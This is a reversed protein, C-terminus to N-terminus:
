REMKLSCSEVPCKGDVPRMSDQYAVSCDSNRLEVLDKLASVWEESRPLATLPLTQALRRRAPHLVHRIRDFHGQSWDAQEHDGVPEYKPDQREQYGALRERRLKRLSAYLSSRESKLEARAEESTTQQIKENIRAVDAELSVFDPSKRLEEEEKAPLTQPLGPNLRMTASRFGEALDTRPQMGLYTAAGDVSSVNSLYHNALVHVNNQSAFRLVESNANILVARRAAHMGFVPTVFDARRAWGFGQNAWSTPTRPIKTRGKATWKPFVPENEKAKAWPVVRYSGNNEPPRAALAQEVTQYDAFAQSSIINALWHLMPQAFLPPPVGDPGVIQEGFPHEPRSVNAGDM